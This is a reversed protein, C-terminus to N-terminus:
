QVRKGVLHTVHRLSSLERTDLSWPGSSVRTRAAALDDFPRLLELRLVDGVRQPRKGRQALRGALQEQRRHLVVHEALRLAVAGLHTTLEQCRSRGCHM